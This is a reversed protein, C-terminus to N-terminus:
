SKGRKEVNKVTDTITNLIDEQIFSSIFNKFKSEDEDPIIYRIYKIDEVCIVTIEFGRSGYTSIHEVVKDKAVEKTSENTFIIGRTINFFGMSGFLERVIQPGKGRKFFNGRKVKVVAYLQSNRNVKIDVGYESKGGCHHTTYDNGYLCRIYHEAFREWLVSPREDVGSKRNGLYNTNTLGEILHKFITSLESATAEQLHPQAIISTGRHVTNHQDQLGTQTSNKSLATTFCDHFKAWDDM